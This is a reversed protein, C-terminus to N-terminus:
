SKVAQLTYSHALREPRDTLQWEHNTDPLLSMQGPLAEWPVTDHEELMTIQM